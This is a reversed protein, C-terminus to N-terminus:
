VVEAPEANDPFALGRQNNKAAYMAADARQMLTDIDEGHQPYFAIGISIGISVAHGRIPFPERMALLLKEAVASADGISSVRPLIAAFEDGGLRAVMKGDLGVLTENDLRAVTDSERLVSRLRAGVEQLLLDGVQHGLTDNVAKFRDLDMLLLAFPQRALTYQRVSEELSDRFRTRNPLNTLPDTFAMYELSGYLRNLERAMQNFDEALERIEALGGAQVQEGLYDMNGGVRRLHQTLINLPQLTTKELIYFALLVGLLTVSIALSMVLWRTKGLGAQLPTVDRMVAVKILPAGAATNLAYEAVLANHMSDPPPWTESAFIRRDRGDRIRLPIGLKSEIRVLSPLPDTVVELYGTPAPGGVPVLVSHRVQGNGICLTAPSQTREAGTRQRAREILQPCGGVAISSSRVSAAKAGTGAKVASLLRYSNDYAVLRDLKIVKATIAHQRLQNELESALTDPNNSALARRFSSEAQLILGLTRARDELDRLQASVSVQVLEKLAERQNELTQQRYIEGTTLALALGLVGMLAITAGLTFRMSFRLIPM